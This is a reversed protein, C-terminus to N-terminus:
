DARLQAIPAAAPVTPERRADVVVLLDHVGDADVLGGLVLVEDPALEADSALWQRLAFPVQVVIDLDSGPLRVNRELLPRLLATHELAIEVGIAPAPHIRASVELRLGEETTAVSPDGLLVAGARTIEFGDVYAEHHTSSLSSSGGDPVLLAPRAAARISGDAVRAALVRRVEARPLARVFAHATEGPVLSPLAKAAVLYQTCEVRVIPGDVAAPRAPPDAAARQAGHAEAPGIRALHRFEISRGAPLPEGADPRQAACGAFLLPALALLPRRM